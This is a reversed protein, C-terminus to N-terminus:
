GAQKTLVIQSDCQSINEPGRQITINLQYHYYPHLSAFTAQTEFSYFIYIKWTVYEILSLQYVDSKEEESWSAYFSSETVTGITIDVYFFSNM